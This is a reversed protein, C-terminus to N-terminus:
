GVVHDARGIFPPATSAIAMLVHQLDTSQSDRDRDPQQCNAHEHGRHPRLQPFLAHCLDPCGEDGPEQGCTTQTANSFWTSIHSSLAKPNGQRVARTCLCQGGGPTENGRAQSLLAKSLIEQVLFTDIDGSIDVKHGETEGQVLQVPVQAVGPFVGKHQHCDV